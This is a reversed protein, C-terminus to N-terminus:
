LEVCLGHVVSDTYRRSLTPRCMGVQVLNCDIRRLNGSYGCHLYGHGTPAIERATFEKHSVCELPSTMWEASHFHSQIGSQRRVDWVASSLPLPSSTNPCCSLIELVIGRLVSSQGLSWIFIVELTKLNFITFLHLVAHLNLPRTMYWSISCM